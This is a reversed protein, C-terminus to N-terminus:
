QLLDTAAGGGGLALRVDPCEHRGCLRVCDRVMAIACMTRIEVVRVSWLQGCTVRGRLGLRLGHVRCTGMAALM